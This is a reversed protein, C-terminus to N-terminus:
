RNIKKGDKKVERTDKFVTLLKRVAINSAIIFVSLSLVISMFIRDSFDPLKEVAYLIVWFSVCLNATENLWAGAEEVWPKM